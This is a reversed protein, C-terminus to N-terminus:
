NRVTISSAGRAGTRYRSSSNGQRGPMSSTIERLNETFQVAPTLNPPVPSVTVQLKSREAQAIIALLLIMAAIFAKKMKM